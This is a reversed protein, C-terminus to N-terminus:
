GGTNPTVGPAAAYDLEGSTAIGCIVTRDGQLWEQESNVYYELVYDAAVDLDLLAVAPETTCAEWLTDDLSPDGYSVEAGVSTVYFVMANTSDSCQSFHISHEELAETEVAETKYCDGAAVDDFSINKGDLAFALVAFGALLLVWAGALVLGAIAFGRNNAQKRKNALLSLTGFIVALVIGGIIGFVLSTIGMWNKSTDQPVVPPRDYVGGVVPRAEAVPDYMQPQPFPTPQAPAPAPVLPPPADKYDDNM